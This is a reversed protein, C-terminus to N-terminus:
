TDHVLFLTYIIATYYTREIVRYKTCIPKIYQLNIISLVHGCVEVDMDISRFADWEGASTRCFASLPAEEGAHLSCIM